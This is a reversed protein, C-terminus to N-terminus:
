PFRDYNSSDNGVSLNVGDGRPGLDLWQLAVTPQPEEWSAELDVKVLM